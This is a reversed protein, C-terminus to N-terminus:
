HTTRPATFGPILFIRAPWSKSAVRHYIRAFGGLEDLAEEHEAVARDTTAYARAVAALALLLGLNGSGELLCLDCIPEEDLHGVPGAGTKQLGCAACVAGPNETIRINYRREDIVTPQAAGSPPPAHDARSEPSPALAVQPKAISHVPDLM